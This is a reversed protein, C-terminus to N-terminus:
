YHRRLFQAWSDSRLEDDTSFDNALFRPTTTAARPFLFWDTQCTLPIRGQKLRSGLSLDNSCPCLFLSHSFICLSFFYFDLSLRLALISLSVFYNVFALSLSFLLSPHRQGSTTYARITSSSFFHHTCCSSAWRVLHLCHPLSCCPPETALFPHKLVAPPEILQGADFREPRPFHSHQRELCQLAHPPNDRPNSPFPPAFPPAISPPPPVPPKNTPWPGQTPRRNRNSAGNSPGVLGVELSLWLCGQHHRRSQSTICPWCRLIATVRLTIFLLQVLVGGSRSVGGSAGLHDPLQRWWFGYM